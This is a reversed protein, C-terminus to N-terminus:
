SGLDLADDCLGHAEVPQDLLDYGAQAVHFEGEDGAVVGATDVGAEYVEDKDPVDVLGVKGFEDFFRFSHDFSLDAGQDQRFLFVFFELSFEFLFFGQHDPLFRLPTFPM